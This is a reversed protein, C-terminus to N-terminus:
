GVCQGITASSTSDPHVFLPWECSLYRPGVSFPASVKSLNLLLPQRAGHSDAM